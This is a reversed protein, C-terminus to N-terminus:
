PEGAIIITDHLVYYGDQLSRDSHDSITSREGTEGDYLGVALQYEGAPLGRLPLVSEDAIRQRAEWQSSPCDWNCHMADIQKVITGNEDLLHVFFKYDASIETRASWQLVLHLDSKNMWWSYGDLNVGNDYQLGVEQDMLVLDNDFAYLSERGAFPPSGPCTIQWNYRGSSLNTPVRLHLMQLALDGPAWEAEMPFPKFPKSVPTGTLALQCDPVNGRRSTIQTLLDLQLMAEGENYRVTSQLLRIDESIQEPPRGYQIPRPKTLDYVTLSRDEHVPLFAVMISEFEALEQNSASDRHLLIYRVGTALLERVEPGQVASPSDAVPFFEPPVRQPKDAGEYFASLFPRSSLFMYTGNDYRSVHGEVM